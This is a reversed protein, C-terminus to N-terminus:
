FVAWFSLTVTAVTCLESSVTCYILFLCPLLSEWYNLWSFWPITDSIFFFLCFSLLVLSLQSVQPVFTSVHFVSIHLKSYLFFFLWSFFQTPGSSPSSQSMVVSLMCYQLHVWVGFFHFNLFFLCIYWINQNAVNELRRNLDHKYKSQMKVKRCLVCSPDSFEKTHHWYYYNIIHVYM